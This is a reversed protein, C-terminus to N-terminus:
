RVEVEAVATPGPREGALLALAADLQPDFPPAPLLTVGERAEFARLEDVLATPPDYRSLHAVIRRRTPEDVAVHLDPLIGWDRHEDATREFNRKSPSYYYGSTVKARTGVLPFTRITQLMGKGYTPEGVVAALRHDQLAGALVESASASEGDTLVVVALGALRAASPVAEHEFREIRGEASVITGSPVFRRAIDVAADLVGGYNNRVDVILARAGQAQLREVAADFEETTRHTFSRICLYGIGRAPDVVSEHRVTPDLLVRPRLVVDREVGDLDRLRVHLETRGDARLRNRFADEDLGAIPEGEISIFTDGVQVGADWAPTGALPFLVQGRETPRRFIVGIGKFDGETERRVREAEAHDYYRSYPDLGDIMGHLARDVLEEESLERVFHTRTFEKVREFHDVLPERERPVLEQAILLLLMGALIGLLFVAQLVRAGDM